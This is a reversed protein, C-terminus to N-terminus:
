LIHNAFENSLWLTENRRGCKIKVYVENTHANRCEKIHLVKYRNGKYFVYDGKNLYMAEEVTM